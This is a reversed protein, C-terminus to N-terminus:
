MCVACHFVLKASQWKGGTKKIHLTQGCDAGGFYSLTLAADAANAEPTFVQFFADEASLKCLEDYMTQGAATEMTEIVTEAVEGGPYKEAPDTKEKGTDSCYFIYQTEMTPAAGTRLLKAAADPMSFTMAYNKTKCFQGYFPVWVDALATYLAQAQDFAQECFPSAKIFKNAVWVSQSVDRPHMIQVWSFGDAKTVKGSSVVCDGKRLRTAIDASTSPRARGNLTNDVDVSFYKMVEAGRAARAHALCAALVFFVACIVLGTRCHMM